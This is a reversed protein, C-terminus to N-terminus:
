QGALLHSIMSILSDLVVIVFSSGVVADTTAQGVGRAGGHASLGCAGSVIPVSIGYCLSKVVGQLIDSSSVLSFNMYTSPAMSFWAFGTLLGAYLSSACGIATLSLAAVIGGRLRPVMLTEIPEAACMRMADLQSTVSMAGIEAAIGAGVRCAILMGIVTPGLVRVLLKFFSAGVLTTDGVARELQATSQYVMIMGVFAMAIVVFWFSGNAFRYAVRWSEGPDCRATFLLRGTRWLLIASQGVSRFLTELAGKPKGIRSGEGADAFTDRGFPSWVTVKSKQLFGSFRSMLGTKNKNQTKM